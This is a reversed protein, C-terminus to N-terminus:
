VLHLHAILQGIIPLGNALVRGRVGIHDRAVVLGSVVQNLRGRTLIVQVLATRWNLVSM